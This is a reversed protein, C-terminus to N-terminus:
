GGWMDPLTEEQTFGASETYVYCRDVVCREGVGDTNITSEIILQKKDNMNIDLTVQITQEVLVYTANVDSTTRSELEAVVKELAQQGIDSETELLRRIEGDIYALERNLKSYADYYSQINNSNKRNLKLDADASTYSLISFTTLCLVVFIMFISTVGTGIQFGSNGKM